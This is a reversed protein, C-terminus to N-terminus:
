KIKVQNPFQNYLLSRDKKNVFLIIVIGAARCRQAVFRVDKKFKTNEKTKELTDIGDVIVFFNKIEKGTNKENHKKYNISMSGIITDFRRQMEAEVDVFADETIGQAEACEYKSPDVSFFLLDFGDQMKLQEVVSEVSKTRKEDNGCKFLLGFTNTINYEENDLKFIVDKM